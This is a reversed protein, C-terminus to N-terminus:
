VRIKEVKGGHSLRPEKGGGYPVSKHERLDPVVDTDASRMSKMLTRPDFERNLEAKKFKTFGETDGKKDVLENDAKMANAADDRTTKAPNEESADKKVGPNHIMEEEAQAVLNEM